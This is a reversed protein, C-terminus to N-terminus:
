TGEGWAVIAVGLMVLCGGIVTTKNLYNEKFLWLSFLITFIPYALEILAALTSNKAQMSLVIFFSGLNAALISSLFLWLNRNDKATMVTLLNQSSYFYSLTTFVVAGVCSQAALLTLPSVGNNLIKGDLTYNLGWIIAATIAYALWM